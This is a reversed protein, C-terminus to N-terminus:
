PLQWTIPTQAQAALAADIRSFPKSGFWLKASLPSPHAGEVLTHRALDVLPAKKRAWAGWLVFVVPTSLANVAQFIADTLAEWGYGQHSNPEGRRVTLVANLLLVGQQAWPVLSGSAPKAAGLDTALEKYINALSPPPKIGPKVSFALGHAQDPGHYPDQGLILVRTKALPTLHLATFVEDAPPYVPGKKREAAVRELLTRYADNQLTPALVEAWVTPVASANPAASSGPPKTM